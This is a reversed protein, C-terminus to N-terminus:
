DLRLYILTQEGSKESRRVRKLTKGGDILSWAETSKLRKGDEIELIDFVLEGNKWVVASHFEDGDAGFSKSEIGDTTYRQVAHRAILGKSITEVVFDPDRRTIKLTVDGSRKPSCQENSQKWSGSFDPAPSEAGLGLAAILILLLRM